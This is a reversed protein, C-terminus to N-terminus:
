VEKVCSFNTRFNDIKVANSSKQYLDIIVNLFSETVNLSALKTFLGKHWVSDYAKKLDVFCAYLKGKPTNYVHKNILTKLTFIHDTPRHDKQFGIQSRDIINNTKLFFTLRDNLILIFLKSLCSTVCIARYNDPNM